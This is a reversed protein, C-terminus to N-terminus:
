GGFSSSHLKIFRCYNRQTDLIYIKTMPTESFKKKFFLKNPVFICNKITVM